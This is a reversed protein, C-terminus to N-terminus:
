RKGPLSHGRKHSRKRRGTGPEAPLARGGRSRGSPDQTPTYIRHRHLVGAAGTSHADHDTIIQTSARGSGEQREYNLKKRRGKIRVSKKGFSFVKKLFILLKKILNGMIRCIKKLPLLILGWLFYFLPLILRGLSLFYVSAGLASALLMFFRYEGRGIYFAFLLNGCLCLVCFFLDAPLTLARLNRRLGRLLDYCVGYGAGLIAALLFQSGQLAVPQEM